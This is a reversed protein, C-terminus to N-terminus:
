QALIYFHNDNRAIRRIATVRRLFGLDDLLPAVQIKRGINEQSILRDLESPTAAVAIQQGMLSLGCAAVVGYLFKRNSM